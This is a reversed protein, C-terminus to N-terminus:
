KKTIDFAFIVDDHRLYLKGGFVVPHAWYPGKGGAPLKFEGAKEYKVASTRALKMTGKEDYLYVMGDAYTLSGAGQTKWMVKGTLFEICFWGRSDSGSGYVYGDNLLAGGHYNDM